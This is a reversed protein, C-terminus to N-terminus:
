HVAERRSSAPGVYSNQACSALVSVWTANNLRRISEHEFANALDFALRPYGLEATKSVLDQATKLSPSLGADEMDTLRRLALEINEGDVYRQILLDHTTNDPKVGHRQM